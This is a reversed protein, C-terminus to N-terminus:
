RIGVRYSLGCDLPRIIVNGGYLDRRFALGERILRARRARSLNWVLRQLLRVM